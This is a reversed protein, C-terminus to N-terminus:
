DIFLIKKQGRGKRIIGVENNRLILLLSLKLFVIMIEDFRLLFYIFLCNLLNKIKNVKVKKEVYGWSEQEKNNM